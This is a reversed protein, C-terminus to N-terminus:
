GSYAHLYKLKRSSLRIFAKLAVVQQYTCRIPTHPLHLSVKKPISQQLAPREVEAVQQARAIGRVSRRCTTSAADTFKPAFCRKLTHSSVFCHAHLTNSMKVFIAQTSLKAKSRGYVHPAKDSNQNQVTVEVDASQIHM